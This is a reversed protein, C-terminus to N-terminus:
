IPLRWVAIEEARQVVVGRPSISAWLPGFRVAGVETMQVDGYTEGALMRVLGIDGDQPADVRRCGHPVLKANMFNLSGGHRALIAHAEAKTNYTGRLGSAPDIGTCERIWTACFTMCDDGGVGGWRFRHPLCLFGKIKM